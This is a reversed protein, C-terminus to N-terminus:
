ACSELMRRAVLKREIHHEILDLLYNNLDRLASATWSETTLQELRGALMRRGAAVATAPLARMGPLKCDTCILGAQGPSVFAAAAGLEKGCRGCHDLAPLWGGLRMMWISFYALALDVKATRKITQASLLLLRFAADSPERDPLVTETIECILALAVSSAYDRFADLFSEMLECQNIRVLDRGEREFFWIRVYSLRELTSGFRSKTRRAGAAVGRVRGMSRSFFSVLRDGEGMPYGQLVIAESERVPM